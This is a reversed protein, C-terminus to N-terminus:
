YRARIFDRIGIKHEACCSSISDVFYRFNHLNLSADVGIEFRHIKIEDTKGNHRYQIDVEFAPLEPAQRLIWINCVQNKAYELMLPEGYRKVIKSGSLLVPYIVMGSQGYAIACPLGDDLLGWLFRGCGELDINVSSFFKTLVMDPNQIEPNCYLTGQRSKRYSRLIMHQIGFGAGLVGLGILIVGVM